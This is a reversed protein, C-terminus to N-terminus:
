RSALYTSIKRKIKRILIKLLTVFGNKKKDLFPQLLKLLHKQELLSLQENESTEPGEERYFDELVDRLDDAMAQLKRTEEPNYQLLFRLHNFLLAAKKIDGANMHDSLRAVVEKAIDELERIEPESLGFLAASDVDDIEIFVKCLEKLEQGYSDGLKEKYSRMEREIEGNIGRLEEELMTRRSDGLSRHFDRRIDQEKRKLKQIRKSREDSGFEIADTIWKESAQIRERGIKVANLVIRDGLMRRLATLDLHVAGDTILLIEADHFPDTARIDDVAAKIAASMMTGNGLSNIHMVSSILDEFSQRDTAIVPDSVVTDFTRFFVNGLETMNRKLFNFVVAKAVHIRHYEIMSASTDLLVYVKQKRSDPAFDNSETSYKFNNPPIPRPMWLSRDAIKRYFVAEPYYFQYPYIRPIDRTHTILTAEYEEGHTVIPIHPRETPPKASTEERWSRMTVPAISKSLSNETNELIRAIEFVLSYEAPLGSEVHRLFGFEGLRYFFQDYRSTSTM